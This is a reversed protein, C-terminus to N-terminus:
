KPEIAVTNGHKKQAERLYHRIIFDRRILTENKTAVDKELDEIKKEKEQMSKEMEKQAKHARHYNIGGLGLLCFASLAAPLMGMRIEGNAITPLDFPSSTSNLPANVGFTHLFIAENEKCEKEVDRCQSFDATLDHMEDEKQKLRKICKQNTENGVKYATHLRATTENGLKYAAALSATLEEIRKNNVNSDTLHRGNELQLVQKEDRESTLNSACTALQSSLASISAEKVTAEQELVGIRQAKAEKEKVAISLTQQCNKLDRQELSGTVCWDTCVRLAVAEEESDCQYPEALPYDSCYHAPAHSKDGENRMEMMFQKTCSGLLVTGLFISIVMMVHHHCRFIAPYFM